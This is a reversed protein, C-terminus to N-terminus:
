ASHRVDSSYEGFDFVAIRGSGILEEWEDVVFEASQRRCLEFILLRTLSKLSGSEHVFGIQPKHINLLCLVPVAAGNRRHRPPPSAASEPPFPSVFFIRAAHRIAFGHQNSPLRHGTEQSAADEPDTTPLDVSEAAIQEYKEWWNLGDPHCFVQTTTILIWDGKPVVRFQTGWGGFWAYGGHLNEHTEQNESYITVGYGFREALRSEGLTARLSSDIQDTTMAKVSDKRLVRIGNIGRRQAAYLCFRMYDEPTSCMTGGGSHFKNCETHFDSSVWGFEHKLRQGPELEM